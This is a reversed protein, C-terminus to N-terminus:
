TCTPRCMKIEGYLCCLLMTCDYLVLLFGFLVVFIYVRLVMYRQLNRSSRRRTQPRLVTGERRRMQRSLQVPRGAPSRVHWLVRLRGQHHRRRVQVDGEGHLQVPVQLRRGVAARCDCLTHYIVVSLIAFFVPAVVNYALLCAAQKNLFQCVCFMSQFLVVLISSQGIYLYMSPPTAWHNPRRDKAPPSERIKAQDISRIVENTFHGSYALWGPWSLREDRRPLHTIASVM